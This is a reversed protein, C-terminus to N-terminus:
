LYLILKLIYFNQLVLLNSEFSNFILIKRKRKLNNKSFDIIILSYIHIYLYSYFVYM